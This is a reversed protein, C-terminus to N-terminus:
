DLPLKVDVTTIVFEITSLDADDDVGLRSTNSPALMTSWDARRMTSAGSHCNRRTMINLRVVITIITLSPFSRHSVLFPARRHGRRPLLFSRRLIRSEEVGGDPRKGSRTKNDEANSVQGMTDRCLTVGNSNRFPKTSPPFLWKRYPSTRMKPLAEYELPLFKLSFSRALPSERSVDLLAVTITLARRLSRSFTLSLSLSSPEPAQFLRNLLPLFTLFFASPM